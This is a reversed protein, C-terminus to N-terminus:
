LSIFWPDKPKRMRKFMAVLNMVLYIAAMGATLVAFVREIAAM